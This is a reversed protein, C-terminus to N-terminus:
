SDQFAGGEDGPDSGSGQDDAESIAGWDDGAGGGAMEGGGADFDNYDSSAYGTSNYYSSSDRYYSSDLGRRSAEDADLGIAACDPCRPGSATEHLHGACVPKGCNTCFATAMEDCMTFTLFGTRHGCRTM